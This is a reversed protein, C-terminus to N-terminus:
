SLINGSCPTKMAVTNISYYTNAIYTHIYSVTTDNYKCVPICVYYTNMCVYAFLYVCVCVSVSVSVSVYICVYYTYVSNVYMCTIYESLSFHYEM